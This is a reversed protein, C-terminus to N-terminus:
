VGSQESDSVADKLNVTILRTDTIGGLSEMFHLVQNSKSYAIIGRCGNRKAYFGLTRMGDLWFSDDLKGRIFTAMSYILLNKTESCEDYLFTTIVVALVKGEEDIIAWCSLNDSQLSRLINNMQNPSDGTMPPVSRRVSEKIVPWCASIQAPLLKVLM